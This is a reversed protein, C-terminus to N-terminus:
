FVSCFPAKQPPMLRWFVGLLFPAKEAPKLASFVGFEM